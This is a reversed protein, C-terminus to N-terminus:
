TLSLVGARRSFRKDHGGPKRLRQLSISASAFTSRPGTTIPSAFPFNIFTRQDSAIGLTCRLFILLSRPRAMAKLGSSLM